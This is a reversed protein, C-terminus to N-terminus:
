DAQRCAGGHRACLLRTMPHVQQSRLGSSRCRHGRLQLREPWDRCGCLAGRRRGPRVRHGRPRRNEQGGASHWVQLRVAQPSQPLCKLRWRSGSRRQLRQPSSPPKGRGGLASGQPYMALRCLWTCLTGVVPVESMCEVCRRVAHSADALAHAM